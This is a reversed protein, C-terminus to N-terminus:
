PARSDGRLGYVAFVPGGGSAGPARRFTLQNGAANRIVQIGHYAGTGIANTGWAERIQHVEIAGFGTVNGIGQLNYPAEIVIALLNFDSILESRPITLAHAAGNQVPLNPTTSNPLFEVIPIDLIWVGTNDPVPDVATTAPGSPERARYRRGDSGLVRANQRYNIQNSWDLGSGMENIEVALSSLECFLQNVMERSPAEGGDESFASTWGQSRDVAPSGDEPNERDGLNAWPILLKLAEINRAM